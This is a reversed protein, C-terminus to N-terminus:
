SRLERTLPAALDGRRAVHVRDLDLWAALERLEAALAGATEGGDAHAEAYAGHVRLVRAGRDAKLDVRATIRDGHLFPLVYYGHVREAAPTYIEIRYHFGFLLEDRTREWVVPDFPSLLSRAGIRRPLVADRHLYAVEKWGDVQVPRVDGREVITRLADRSATPKLLFYYCLDRATGIGLARAAKALLEVRADAEPIEHARLESPIASIPLYIREFSPRRRATVQGTWFLWELALKTDSLDWWSGTRRTGPPQLEGASLPGRDEVARLVDAVFRPQTTGLQHIRRWTHGERARRMRWGFLPWDDIPILAAQHGWYEFLEGANLMRWLSRRDHAGTRSWLPMEHARVLVNVSDMQLLQVTAIVRRVQRADGHGNPRARAFGQAALAIRRAQAISLSDSAPVVRSAM